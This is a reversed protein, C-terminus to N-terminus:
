VVCFENGEPDHMLAFYHDHEPHEGVRAITAGLVVLEAVKADVRQKRTALPQSRGGGVKLDLHLRNKLSKKEPVPQFWIAPGRGEPDQLRDQCDGDGLEDEPVGISLYWARWTDFDGPPPTPVYGLAPAWFRVLLEPDACDITLQYEIAM